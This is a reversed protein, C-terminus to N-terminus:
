FSTSALKFYSLKALRGASDARVATPNDRGDIKSATELTTTEFRSSVRVEVWSVNFVHVHLNLSLGFAAAVTEIMVLLLKSVRHLSLTLLGADV